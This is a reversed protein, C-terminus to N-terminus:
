ACCFLEAFENLHCVFSPRIALETIETISLTADIFGTNVMHFSCYIINFMKNLYFFCKKFM